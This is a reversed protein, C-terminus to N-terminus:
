LREFDDRAIGVFFIDDCCSSGGDNHCWGRLTSQQLWPLM